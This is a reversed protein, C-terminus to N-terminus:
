AARRSGPAPDPYSALENGGRDLPQGRLV